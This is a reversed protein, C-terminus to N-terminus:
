TYILEKKQLLTLGIMKRIHSRTNNGSLVRINRDNLDLESPDHSWSAGPEIRLNYIMKKLESETGMLAMNM